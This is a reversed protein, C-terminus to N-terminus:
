NNTQAEQQPFPHISSHLTLSERSSIQEACTVARDSQGAHLRTGYMCFFPFSPLSCVQIACTNSSVLFSASLLRRCPADREKERANTDIHSLSLLFFYFVIRSFSSFFFNFFPLLSPLSSPSAALAVIQRGTEKTEFQLLLRM